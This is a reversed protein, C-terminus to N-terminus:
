AIYHGTWLSAIYLSAIVTDHGIKKQRVLNETRKLPLLGTYIFTGSTLLNLAPSPYYTRVTALGVAFLSFGFLDKEMKSKKAPTNGTTAPLEAEKPQIPFQDSAAEATGDTLKETNKKIYVDKIKEEYVRVGSYTVVLALAELFM